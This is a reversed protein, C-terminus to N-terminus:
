GITWIDWSNASFIRFRLGKHLCLCAIAKEMWQYCHRYHEAGSKLWDSRSNMLMGLRRGISESSFSVAFPSVDSSNSAVSGSLHFKNVNKTWKLAYIESTKKCTTCFCVNPSTSVQVIILHGTRDSISRGFVISIQHDKKLNCDIVDPINKSTTNRTNRKEGPLASACM